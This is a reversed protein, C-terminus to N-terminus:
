GGIYTVALSDPRQAELSEFGLIVTRSSNEQSEISSATDLLASVAVIDNGITSKIAGDENISYHSIYCKDLVKGAGDLVVLTDGMVAVIENPAYKFYPSNAIIPRNPVINGILPVVDGKIEQSM